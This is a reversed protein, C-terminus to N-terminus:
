NITVSASMKISLKLLYFSLVKALDKLHIFLHSKFNDYIQSPVTVEENPQVQHKFAANLQFSFM